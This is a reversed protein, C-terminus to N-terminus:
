AREGGFVVLITLAEEISHFRHELGAGVYLISGAKVLRDEDGVRFRGRGEIVHYVEDRSHPQQPDAAGAELSYLGARIGPENLFEWYLRGSEGREAALNALTHFAWGRGEVSDIERMVKEGRPDAVESRRLFRRALLRGDGGGEISEAGKRGSVGSERVVLPSCDQFVRSLAVHYAGGGESPLRRGIFSPIM